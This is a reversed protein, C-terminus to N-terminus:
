QAILHRSREGNFGMKPLHALGWCAICVVRVSGAMKPMWARLPVLYTVTLAVLCLAWLSMLILLPQPLFEIYLALSHSNPFIGRPGDMTALSKLIYVATGILSTLTSYEGGPVENRTRRIDLSRSEPEVLRFRINSM